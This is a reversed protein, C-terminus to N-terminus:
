TNKKSRLLIEVFRVFLNMFDLFVNTACGLHDPDGKQYMSIALHTEYATLGSFVVIGGYIDISHLLSAFANPGFIMTSGLATLGVGCVGLLGIMLPAEWSLLKDPPLSYAYATAGGMTVLSMITAVPLIMPSVFQSVLIIPSIMLGMSGTILGFSLLRGTSNVSETKDASVTYKFIKLGSCGIFGALLGGFILHPTHTVVLASNSFVWATGLGGTIGLGSTLYVKKIFRSLGLNNSVVEATTKPEISITQTNPNSTPEAFKNQWNKVFNNGVTPKSSTSFSMRSYIGFRPCSLGFRKSGINSSGSLLGNFRVVAPVTVM